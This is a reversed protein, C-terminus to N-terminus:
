KEWFFTLVADPDEWDLIETRLSTMLLLLSYYTYLINKNFAENYLM